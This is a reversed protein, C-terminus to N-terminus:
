WRPSVCSLADEATEIGVLKAIVRTPLYQSFMYGVETADNNKAVFSQNLLEVGDDIVWPRTTLDTCATLGNLPDLETM